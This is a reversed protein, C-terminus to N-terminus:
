YISVENLIRLDVIQCIFFLAFFVRENNEALMTFSVKNKMFIIYFQFQRIQFQKINIIKLLIRNDVKRM